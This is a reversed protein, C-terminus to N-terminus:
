NYLVEDDALRLRTVAYRRVTPHKFVPTLLELSDEADIPSWRSMLELAQKTEQPM